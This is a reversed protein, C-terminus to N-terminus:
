IRRFKKKKKKLQMTKLKIKAISALITGRSRSSKADDISEMKRFKGRPERKERDREGHRM